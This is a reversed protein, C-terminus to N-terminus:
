KEKRKKKLKEIHKKAEQLDAILKDIWYESFMYEYSKTDGCGYQKFAITGDDELGLAVGYNDGYKIVKVPIVGDGASMFIIDYEDRLQKLTKKDWCQGEASIYLKGEFDNDDNPWYDVNKIM